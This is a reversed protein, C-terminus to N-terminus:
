GVGCFPNFKKEQGITTAQMHGNYVITEDPVPSFTLTIADAGAVALPSVGREAIFPNYVLSLGFLAAGAVMGLLLAVVHKM